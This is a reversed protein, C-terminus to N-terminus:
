QDRELDFFYQYSPIAKGDVVNRLSVGDGDLVAYTPGLTTRPFAPSGPNIRLIGESDMQIKPHHTHGSVFIDGSKLSLGYPSPFRDGHTLLITRPGWAITRNIPPLPLGAQSFAYSSDCNGRVLIINSANQLLYSLRPDDSPCLDGAILIAQAQHEEARELLQTLAPISGHIDSSLLFTPTM